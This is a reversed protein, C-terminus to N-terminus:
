GPHGIPHRSAPLRQQRGSHYQTSVIGVLDLIRAAVDGTLPTGDPATVSKCDVLFLHTNTGGHPIRLGREALRQAMRAANAVIQHQLDRFQKTAAFRLAVAIGLISNMHPGGQEGPFVARDLKSALDRHHTLIVAGRPGMLTKHTTFTVVDAIGVPSPYAGAATLGAV